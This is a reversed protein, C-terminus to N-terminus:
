PQTDKTLAARGAPCKLNSLAACGAPTIRIEAPLRYAPPGVGGRKKVFGRSVLSSLVRSLPRGAFRAIYWKGDGLASLIDFQKQTLKAM